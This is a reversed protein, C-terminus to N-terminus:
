ARGALARYHAGTPRDQKGFDVFRLAARERFLCRREIIGAHDTWILRRGPKCPPCGLKPHFEKLRDRLADMAEGAFWFIWATWSIGPAHCGIIGVQQRVPNGSKHALCRGM